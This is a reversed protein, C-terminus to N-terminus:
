CTALKLQRSWHIRPTPLPYRQDLIDLKRRTLRARQSRRQLAKYWLRRVATRFQALARYNTAVGYYTFHGRLLGRLWEWQRRLPWGIRKRMELKLAALKAKRKKRATRRALVFQGKLGKGSIHTFGLFDFTNPKKLGDHHADREAFLGFRLLRTKEPHLTLGFTAMRERLAELLATAENPYQVGIIFDDAYRVLHVTGKMTRARKRMWLDLVYHLYINALLPSILGGQPTGEETATLVGEDLVGGKLWRRILRLLRPDAIRHALMAMLKEHDITDFYSKIDADIVWNVKGRYLMLDIARLAQHQSRGPRFGYSSDLFEAEYVPSLVAVVAGQVIKDEIAPIGLPRQKGDAKPIYTRRVPQPRYGMRHLRGALDALRGELGQAYQQWSLGDVGPAAQRKLRMFVERLLDVTLLTFLNNLKEKKGERKAGEQKARERLRHLRTAGANNRSPTRRPDGQLAKGKAPGRGEAREAAQAKNAPKEPVIPGDSKGLKPGRSTSRRSGAPARGGSDLPLALQPDGPERASPTERMGPDKVVGFPADAEGTQRSGDQQRGSNVLADAKPIVNTEHSL